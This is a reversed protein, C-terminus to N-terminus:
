EPLLVRYINTLATYRTFVYADPDPGPFVDRENIIRAAFRKQLDVVNPAGAVDLRFPPGHLPLVATRQNSEFYRTALYLSRGDPSWQLPPAWARSPGSGVACASCIVIQRGTAIEFAAIKSIGSDTAPMNVAAWAGDPSVSGIHIIPDPAIQRRGTGDENMIMVRRVGGTQYIIKDPPAFFARYEGGNTLQRPPTRRDLDAIWIGGPAPQDAAYVVRQGDRSLSYHSMLVGPLMVELRGTEMDARWLEGSVYNRAATPAQLLYYVFRRDLTIVPLLAFGESTIQRDGGKKDHFWVTSLRTGAATFLSKGDPAVAIGEEESPGFTVQEPEGAEFRQRWLHFAGGANSTFYMWRGDPSWGAATCQAGTPGVVRGRSSGDFPILRCPLWAGADDMEVILLWKRDPSLFSRHAMSSIGAPTYIQREGTHNVSGIAIAMHLGQNPLTMAYLLTSDDIWSVGSGNLMFRSPEGGFVPVTWSNWFFGQEVASYVIQSGDLSFSPWNKGQENHTLRTPQGNPLMQVWLQVPSQGSTGFRYSGRLYAIMRGDPSIAPAGAADTFHTLQVFEARRPAAGNRRTGLWVGILLLAVAAVAAAIGGSRRMLRTPRSAPLPIRGATMRELDAALDRATQYRHAPDKDLAKLIIFDLAPPVNPNVSSPPAPDRNLIADILMAGQDQFPLGGTAMEYLVVGASYIDIRPDPVEGRLQEPAMYPVTGTVGGTVAIDTVLQSAAVGKAYVQKALGFDLIKLHGDATVIVNGPKLDRHIIGLDHAAALGRSIQIGFSLLQPIALPGSGLLRQLTEGSILEMVLYDTGNDEGFDYLTAVNPHNLRCLTRAENRFRQRAIDDDLAHAPLLKVAVPRGLREDEARYVVGMGGAGLQSVLRYHGIREEM